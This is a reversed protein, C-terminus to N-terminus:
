PSLQGVSASLWYKLHSLSWQHATGDGDNQEAQCSASCRVGTGTSDLFNMCGPRLLRLPAGLRNQMQAGPEPFLLVNV